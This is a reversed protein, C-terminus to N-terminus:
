ITCIHHGSKCHLCADFQPVLHEKGNKSNAAPITWLKKARLDIHSWEAAAIEGRRQATVLLLKLAIPVSKYTPFEEIKAWFDKIEKFSLNRERRKEVGGVSKKKLDACVNSTLIGRDVGFQLMQKTVSMTRNAMARAGRDVIKDLMQIVDRRTVETCKKKGLSPIVNSDLISRAIDPRKREREVYRSM